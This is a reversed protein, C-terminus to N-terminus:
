LRRAFLRLWLNVRIKTDRSVSCDLRAGSMVAEGGSTRFHSNGETWFGGGIDPSRRPNPPM